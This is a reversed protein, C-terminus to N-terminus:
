KKLVFKVAKAAYTPIYKLVGTKYLATGVAGVAALVTGGIGLNKNRNEKRQQKCLNCYKGDDLVPNDCNETKCKPIREDTM